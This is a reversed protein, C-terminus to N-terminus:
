AGRGDAGMPAPMVSLDDGQGDRGEACEDGFGEEHHDVAGDDTM